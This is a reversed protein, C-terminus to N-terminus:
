KGAKVNECHNLLFEGDLCCIIEVFLEVHEVHFMKCYALMESTAIGGLIVGAMTASQPRSRSLVFFADLFADLEPELYPRRALAHPM